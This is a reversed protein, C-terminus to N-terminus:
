TFRTTAHAKNTIEGPVNRLAFTVAPLKQLGQVKILLHAVAFIQQM